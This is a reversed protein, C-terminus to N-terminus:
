QKDIIKVAKKIAANWGKAYYNLVPIPTKGGLRDSIDNAIEKFYKMGVKAETKVKEISQYSLIKHTVNNRIKRYRELKKYLKADQTLAFYLSNRKYFSKNKETFMKKEDTIKLRNLVMKTLLPLLVEELISSSLMLAQLLYGKDRAEIIEDVIEELYKIEKDSQKKLTGSKKKPLTM